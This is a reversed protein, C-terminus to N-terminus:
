KLWRCLVACRQQALLSTEPPERDAVSQPRPLPFCFSEGLDANLLATPVDTTVAPRPTTSCTEFHCTCDHPSPASKAAQSPCSEATGRCCSSTSDVTEALNAARVCCCSARGAAPAFVWMVSALLALSAFIRRENRIRAQM